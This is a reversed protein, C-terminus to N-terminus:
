SKRREIASYVRFVTGDREIAAMRTEAEDKTKFIVSCAQWGKPTLHQVEHGIHHKHRCEEIVNM